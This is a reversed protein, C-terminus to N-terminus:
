DDQADYSSFADSSIIFLNDQLDFGPNPNDVTSQQTQGIEFAILRQDKRLKGDIFTGDPNIYADSTNGDQNPDRLFERLSPQDGASPDLTNDGAVDYGGTDPVVSDSRFVYVTGDGKVDANGTENGNFTARKSAIESTNDDDQPFEITHWLKNEYTHIAETGDVPVESGATVPNGSADVNSYSPNSGNPNISDLQQKYRNGRAICDNNFDTTSPDQAAFASAVMTFPRSTDIDLPQPQRNEEHIWTYLDQLADPNPTAANPDFSPNRGSGFDSRVRWCPNGGSERGYQPTLSTLSATYSVLDESTNGPANRARAVVQTNATYTESNTRGIDVASTLFLQAAIGSGDTDEAEGFNSDRDDDQICAYFGTPAAPSVIQGGDTPNAASIPNTDCQIASTALTTNDIGDILAEAQWTGGTYEGTASLPPGWRYLVQPGEWNSGTNPQLYYVIDNALDPLDLALVVEQGTAPTFGTATTKVSQARRVEDSVFDLARSSDNRIESFATQTQTNRLLHVLGFGLGGVVITGMILGVLLETLTFGSNSKSRSRKLLKHFERNKM